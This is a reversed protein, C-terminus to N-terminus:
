ANAYARCSTVIAIFHLALNRMFPLPKAIALWSKWAFPKKTLCRRNCIACYNPHWGEGVLYHRLTFLQRIYICSHGYSEENRWLCYAVPLNRHLIAYCEYEGSDLWTTMRQQLQTLSLSNAHGEDQILEANLLALAQSQQSTFVAVPYGIENQLKTM